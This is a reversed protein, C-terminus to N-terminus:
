RRTGAFEHFDGPDTTAGTPPHRLAPDGVAHQLVGVALHVDSRASTREYRVATLRAHAELVETHRAMGNEWLTTVSELNRRASDEARESVTLREAANLREALAQRVELTVRDEVLARHESAQRAIARAEHVRARTLGSDLIDWTATIGAFTDDKWEAVPPFEILLPNAQEYRATLNAQPLHHAQAARVRDLAAQESLRAALTEPRQTLALRICTAPDPDLPDSPTSDPLVPRCRAPLNTGTVFAVQARALDERRTVEALLLRTQDLLVDAALSDAETALGSRRQNNV